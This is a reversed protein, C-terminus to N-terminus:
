DDLSEFVWQIWNNVPMFGTFTTYEAALGVQQIEELSKGASKQKEVVDITAALRDHYAQLEAKTALPGHGPIVKTDDNILALMAAINDRLGTASGGVPRDIFPYGNLNVYQDGTHIVNSERFFILADGDTHSPNGLYMVDIAEGNWHLTINEKFTVVPIAEIPHPDARFNTGAERAELLRTRVSHHAFILSELGFAANGGAHDYHYHSNVIFDIKGEQIGAVAAKIGDEMPMMQDDVMLIGDEGASVALNGGLPPVPEIWWVTDSLKHVKQQVKPFDREQQALASVSCLCALMLFFSPRIVRIGASLMGKKIM